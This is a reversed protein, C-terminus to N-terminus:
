PVYPCHRCGTDCCWGRGALYRATMVLLGTVPDLYYEEGAELARRHAALIAARAPSTWPLRDSSPESLPRDALRDVM